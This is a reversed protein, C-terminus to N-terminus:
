YICSQSLVNGVYGNQIFQYLIRVLSCIFSFLIKLIPFFLYFKQPAPITLFFFFSFDLQLFLSQFLKIKRIHLKLLSKNLFVILIFLKFYCAVKGLISLNKSLLISQLDTSSFIVQPRTCSTQLSYSILLPAM